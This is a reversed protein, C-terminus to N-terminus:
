VRASKKATVNGRARDKRPGLRREAARARQEEPSGLRLEAAAIPAYDMWYLWRGHSM